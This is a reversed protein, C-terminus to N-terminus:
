GTTQMTYDKRKQWLRGACSVRWSAFFEYDVYNQHYQQYDATISANVYWFLLIVTILLTCLKASTVYYFFICLKNLSTALVRVILVRICEFIRVCELVSRLVSIYTVRVRELASSFYCFEVCELLLYGYSCQLVWWCLIIIVKSHSWNEKAVFTSKCTTKTCETITIAFFIEKDKSHQVRLQNERKVVYFQHIVDVIYTAVNYM